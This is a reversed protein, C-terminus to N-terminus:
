KAIQAELKGLAARSCIATVEQLDEGTLGDYSMLAEFGEEGLMSELLGAVAVDAGYKKRDRSFKLGVNIRSRRPVSYDKGNIHFIVIREEEEGKEKRRSDFDIPSVEQKEGLLEDLDAQKVRAPGNAKPM